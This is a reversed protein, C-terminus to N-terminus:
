PPPEKFDLSGRSAPVQHNGRQTSPRPAEWHHPCGKPSPRGKMGSTEQTDGEPFESIEIRLFSKTLLLQLKMCQHGLRRPLEPKGPHCGCGHTRLILVSLGGRARNGAFVGGGGWM